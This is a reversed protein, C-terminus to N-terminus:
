DELPPPASDIVEQRAEDAAEDAETGIVVERTYQKTARVYIAAKESNTLADPLPDPPDSILDPKYYAAVFANVVRLQLASDVPGNVLAEMIATAREIQTAM